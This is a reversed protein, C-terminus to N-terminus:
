RPGQRLSAADSETLRLGHIAAGLLAADSDMVHVPIRGLLESFRGKRQFAEMFSGERLAPLINIPIGGGLYVGGTALVKLALNGAEAALVTVFIDLTAACLPSRNSALAAGVIVRTRDEANALAEAVEDLEPAHDRSELFEYISPIGLGSCVREFSVHDFQHRLYELLGDQLVDTPAFGAHGGESPCATYGAGNWVLFAEGLGTGPAIVAIAGHEIRRGENLTHLEDPRLFPVATATAQLDNLLDVSALNFQARLNSEEIRWPLNTTKAVDEVVPGAVGFTASEVTWRSQHLFERVIAVLSPYSSSRYQKQLLPQRPGSESSFLALDTKTGGIDGALIVTM